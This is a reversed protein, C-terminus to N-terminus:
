AAPTPVVLVPCAASRIVHNTNSGFVMLDVAGRGQVGMVILDANEAAAV